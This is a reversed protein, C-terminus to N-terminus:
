GAGSGIARRRTRSSIGSRSVASPSTSVGSSSSATRLAVARRRANPTVDIAIQEQVGVQVGRVFQAGALDDEVLIGVDLEDRQRVLYGLGGSNSRVDVVSTLAYTPGGITAYRSRSVALEGVAAVVLSSSTAVDAPPTAVASAAACRATAVIPEPGVPPTTAAAPAASRAPSPSTTLTSM